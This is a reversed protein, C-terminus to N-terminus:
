WKFVVFPCVHTLVLRRWFTQIVFRIKETYQQLVPLKSSCYHYNLNWFRYASLVFLLDCFFFSVIVVGFNGWMCLCACYLVRCVFFLKLFFLWALVYYYSTTVSWVCTWLLNLFGYRILRRSAGSSLFDHYNTCVLLVHIDNKAHLKFVCPQHHFYLTTSVRLM